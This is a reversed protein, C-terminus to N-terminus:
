GPWVYVGSEVGTLHTNYAVINTAMQPLGPDQMLNHSTLTSHPTTGVRVLSETGLSPLQGILLQLTSLLNPTIQTATTSCIATSPSPKGSGVKSAHVQLTIGHLLAQPFGDQVAPGGAPDSPNSICLSCCSSAPGLAPSPLQFRVGLAVPSHGSPKSRLVSM